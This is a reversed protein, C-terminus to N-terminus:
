TPSATQFHIPAPPRRTWVRAERADCIDDQEYTRIWTGEADRKIGITEVNGGSVEPDVYKKLVFPYWSDMPQDLFQDRCAVVDEPECPYLGFRAAAAIDDGPAFGDDLGFEEATALVLEVDSEKQSWEVGKLFELAFNEVKHGKAEAASLYADLSKYVGSRVTRWNAFANPRPVIVHTGRLVRVIERLMETSGALKELEDPSGYVGSWAVGLRHLTGVIDYDSGDFQYNPMNDTKWLKHDAV